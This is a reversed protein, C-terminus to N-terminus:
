QEEAGDAWPYRHNADSLARLLELRASRLRDRMALAEEARGDSRDLQVAVAKRARGYAHIADNASRTIRNTTERLMRMRETPRTERTLRRDLDAGLDQILQTARQIVLLDSGGTRIRGGPVRPHSPLSTTM